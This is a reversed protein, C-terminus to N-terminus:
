GSGQNGAAKALPFCRTGDRVWCNLGEAGITSPRHRGPLTPRQRRSKQFRRTDTASALRKRCRPPPPGLPATPPPQSTFAAAPEAARPASRRPQLLGCAPRFLPRELSAGGGVAGRARGAALAPPLRLATTGITPPRPSRPTPRITSAPAPSSSPTPPLALRSRTGTRRGHTPAAARRPAGRGSPVAAANVLWSRAVGEEEGPSGCCSGCSPM